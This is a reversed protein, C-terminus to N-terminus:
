INDALYFLISKRIADELSGANELKVRNTITLNNKELEPHYTYNNINNEAPGNISIIFNSKDKKVYATVDMWADNEFNFKYKYVTTLKNLESTNILELRKEANPESASCSTFVMILLFAALILFSTSTKM